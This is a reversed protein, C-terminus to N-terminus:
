REVALTVGLAVLCGGVAREVHRRWRDFVRLAGPNTLVVAVFAFWALHTLVIYVGIGLQAAPSTGPAVVQTFLAVFFLVTKPNLVNCLFGNGFAGRFGAPAAPAAAAPRDPGAKRAFLASCGLWVLYAAGAYRIATLLWACRAVLYGLGLLTYTVHVVVGCGIGLATAVGAKRGSRLSNRLIVAFDPGPSIVALLTIGAVLLLNSEGTFNM